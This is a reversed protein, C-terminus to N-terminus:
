SPLRAFRGQADPEFEFVQTVAVLDLPGYLHPFLEASADTGPEWRLEPGLREPNIVLLVLGHQGAYYTNAVRLVQEQRSCHIFGEREFAEPTYRGSQQSALWDARSAIHLIPGTM